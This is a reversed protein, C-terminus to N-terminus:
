VVALSNPNSAGGSRTVTAPTRAIWRSHLADLKRVYLFCHRLCAFRIRFQPHGKLLRNISRPPFFSDRLVRLPTTFLKSILKLVSCTILLTMFFSISATILLTISFSTSSISRRLFHSHTLRLEMKMISQHTTLHVTSSPLNIKLSFAKQWTQALPPFCVSQM